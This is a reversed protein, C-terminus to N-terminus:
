RRWVKYICDHGVDAVYTVDMVDVAGCTMRDRRDNRDNRHSRSAIRAVEERVRACAGRVGRRM